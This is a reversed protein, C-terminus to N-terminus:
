VEPSATAGRTAPPAVGLARRDAAEALRARRTRAELDDPEEDREAVPEPPRDIVRDKYDRMAWGRVVQLRQRMVYPSVGHRRALKTASEGRLFHDVGIRKQDMPLPDDPDLLVAAYPSRLRRRLLTVRRHLTGRDRGTLQAIEEYGLDREFHLRLLTRDPADLVAARPGILAWEAERAAALDAPRGRTTDFQEINKTAYIAM